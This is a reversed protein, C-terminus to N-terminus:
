PNVDGAPGIPYSPAANVESQGILAPTCGNGLAVVDADVSFRGEARMSSVVWAQSAGARQPDDLNLYMWGASENAVKDPFVHDRVSVRSAAPLQTDYPLFCCISDPLVTLNEEEDFRVIEAVGIEGNGKYADCTAAPGTPVDRWIKFDTGFQGAGGHIWHAAFLVPLPQRADAGPEAASQFRGYFTNPLNTPDPPVLTPGVVDSEPIARIHVMPSGQAFNQASNVQQYDGTLVNDFLIEQTFYGSDTPQTASCKAVVDITAYGAAAAHTGGIDTCAPISGINPTKGLTFAQQMRQILAPHLQMPLNRCSERDVRFNDISFDGEPSGTDEFGTGRTPAIQGLAVVDYFNISQVDYGTLYINFTIVPFGRDTWLTVRAVQETNSVNTVTMLTQEGIRTNLDVEFWPLLLTAAPLLAIDCTDDNDTSTPRGSTFTAAHATVALSLLIMAPLLRANM